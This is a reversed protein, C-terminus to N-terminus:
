GRREPPEGRNPAMLSRGRQLSFDITAAGISSAIAPPSKQLWSSVVESRSYQFGVSPDVVVTSASDAAVFFDTMSEYAAGLGESLAYKSRLEDATRPTEGLLVM